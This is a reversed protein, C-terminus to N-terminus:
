PIEGARVSSVLLAPAAVVSSGSSRAPAPGAPPRLLHGARVKGLAGRASRWVDPLSKGALRFVRRHEFWTTACTGALFLSHAAEFVRRLWLPRDEAFQRLTNGQFALHASEERLIRLCLANLVPCRSISLVARYYPIAMVEATVLVTVKLELGAWHRLTRFIGHLWHGRLLPAGIHRLYLGLLRSHRQEEAIFLAIAEPFDGDGTQRAHLRALELFHLGGANEGLQFQQLSPVLARWAKRGPRRTLRWPIECPEAQNARFYNLWDATKM